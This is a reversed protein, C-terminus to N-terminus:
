FRSLAYWPVQKFTIGQQTLTQAVQQEQYEQLGRFNIDCSGFLYVLPQASLTINNNKIFEPHHTQLSQKLADYEQVSVDDLVMGQFVSAYQVSNNNRLESINSQVIATLSIAVAALFAKAITKM